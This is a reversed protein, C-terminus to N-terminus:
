ASQSLPCWRLIRSCRMNPNGQPQPSHEQPWHLTQPEPFLWRRHQGPSSEVLVALQAPHCTIVRLLEDTLCLLLDSHRTSSAVPEAASAKASVFSVLLSNISFSVERYDAVPLPIGAIHHHSRSSWPMVHITVVGCQFPRQVAHARVAWERCSLGEIGCNFGSAPHSVFAEPPCPYNCPDDLSEEAYEQALQNGTLIAQSQIRRKITDVPHMM